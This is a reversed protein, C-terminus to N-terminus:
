RSGEPAPGPAGGARALERRAQEVYRGAPYDQVLKDLYIRAEAGNNAALLAQGLHFYLKEKEPYDPFRDLAARFRAVAALPKKRELYFLGILFEHEALRAQARRVMLRSAAAYPSAPYRRTVDELDAIARRTETQDKWPGRMQAMSCMAAQFLAYPAQPHEAYLTAFDTYLSRADVSAVSYGQYFTADAIGLRVLPELEVREDGTYQIGQLTTQARRFSGEALQRLGLRYAEAGTPLPTAEGKDAARPALPALLLLLGAAAAARARALSRREM